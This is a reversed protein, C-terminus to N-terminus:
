WDLNRIESEMAEEIQRTMRQTKAKLEPSFAQKVFEQGLADGLQEDILAVCRRWRPALEPVGHLTKSFYAFNEDVFASSLFPAAAHAVHWRLYTKADDLSRTRLERDVARYFKPETVNFADARELGAHELYAKWSFGPTLAQLGRLDARHHLKQPD